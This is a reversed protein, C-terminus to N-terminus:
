LGSGLPLADTFKWPFCECSSCQSEPPMRNPGLHLYQPALGQSFTSSAAGNRAKNQPRCQPLVIWPTARCPEGPTSELGRPPNPMNAKKQWGSSGQARSAPSHSNPRALGKVKDTGCLNNMQSSLQSLLCGTATDCSDVEGWSWRQLGAADASWVCAEWGRWLVPYRPSKAGLPGQQWSWATTKDGSM